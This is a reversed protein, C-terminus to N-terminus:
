HARRFKRGGVPSRNGQNPRPGRLFLRLNQMEAGIVKALRGQRDVANHFSDQSDAKRFLAVGGV